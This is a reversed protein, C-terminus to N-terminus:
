RARADTEPDLETQGLTAICTREGGLEFCRVGVLDSVGLGGAALRLGAHTEDADCDSSSCRARMVGLEIHGVPLSVFESVDAPRRPSRDFRAVLPEVDVRIRAAVTASLDDDVGYAEGAAVASPQARDPRGIEASCELGSKGLPRCHEGALASGGLANAQEMLARELEARNCAFSTAPVGTFASARPRRRCEAHATGLAAYDAPLKESREVAAHPARPPPNGACGLAVAGIWLARGRLMREDM